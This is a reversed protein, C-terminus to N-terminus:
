QYPQNQQMARGQPTMPAFAQFQGPVGGYTQQVPALNSASGNVAPGNYRGADQIVTVHAGEERQASVVPRAASGGAGRDQARADPDFALFLGDRAIQRCMDDPMALPTAQQSYCKCRTASQICAAAVPVSRPVTQQDYAPATWPMGALRPTNFKLYEAADMGTRVQQPLPKVEGGDPGKRDITAGINEVAQNQKGSVHAYWWYFLYACGILVPICLLMFWFERPLQLKHTHLESSKYWKFVEKPYLRNKRFSDAHSKDCQEKCSAWSHMVVASSGFKRDVHRHKGVLRRVNSDILMPHQTTLWIDYGKHRHTELKAVYDPVASGTGRPRYLGQAEDMIIISGVPLEFWKSPDDLRRWGPIVVDPINWYYVPRSYSEWDDSKPQPLLKEDEKLLGQKAREQQENFAKIEDNRESKLREEADRRWEDYVDRLTFLTKGAGPTGTTLIIM